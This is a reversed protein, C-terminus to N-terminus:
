RKKLSYYKPPRNVMKQRICRKFAPWGQQPLTRRFGRHLRDKMVLFFENYSLLGDQNEDFMAFITDVLHESLAVGTVTHVARSFEKKGMPINLLSYMRMVLTFDNLNNLFRIFSGFEEFTVRKLTTDDAELRDILRDILKEYDDTDLYTYRLLIKAFDVECITNLGRAYQNFELALVENQLNIMFQEFHEYSLIKDGEPGFFHIMLTTDVLHKKQLGEEDDVYHDIRTLPKSNANAPQDVTDLGRQKRWARSFIMEMELYEDKDLGGSHDRDYMSFAIRFGSQPKVLISLLFIYEIYSIIGKHLNRFFEISGEGQPPTMEKMDQLHKDKLAKRNHRRRPETELISQIFDQPTMYIQGNYQTSAFRIFRKESSKRKRLLVTEKIMGRNLNSKRITYLAFVSGILTCLIPLNYRICITRTKSLLKAPKLNRIVNRFLKM